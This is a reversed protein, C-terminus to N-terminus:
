HDTGQRTTLNHHQSQIQPMEMEIVDTKVGGIKKPIADQESLIELTEKKEVFVIIADQKTEKGDTIKKGVGVGIVNKKRLYEQTDIEERAKFAKKM